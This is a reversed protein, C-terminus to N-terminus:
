LIGELGLMPAAEALASEAEDIDAKYSPMDEDASLLSHLACALRRALQVLQFETPKTM